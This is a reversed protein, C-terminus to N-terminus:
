GSTLNGFGQNGIFDKLATANSQNSIDGIDNLVDKAKEVSGTLDQL